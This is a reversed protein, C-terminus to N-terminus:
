RRLLSDLGAKWSRTTGSSRNEEKATTTTSSVGVAVSVAPPAPAPPSQHVATPASATSILPQSAHNSNAEPTAVPPVVIRRGSPEHGDVLRMSSLSHPVFEGGRDPSYSIVALSLQEVNPILSNLDTHFTYVVYITV